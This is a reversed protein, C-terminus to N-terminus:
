ASRGCRRACSGSRATPSRASSAAGDLLHPDVPARSTTRTRSALTKPLIEAFVVVLVSMIGTAILPGMVSGHPFMSSLVSTTLSSAFINIVNYSLLIAGIMRERDTLLLNVRRAARDGDRELQHMRGRSAATMATEAASILASIALLFILTPALALLAAV